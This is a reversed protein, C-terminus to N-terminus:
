HRHVHDSLPIPITISSSHFENDDHSNNCDSDVAFVLPFNEGVGDSFFCSVYSDYLWSQETRLPLIGDIRGTWLRSISRLYLPIAEYESRVYGGSPATLASVPRFSLYPISLLFRLVHVFCFALPFTSVEISM